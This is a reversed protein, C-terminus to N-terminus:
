KGTVTNRLQTKALATYYGVFDAKARTYADRDHRYTACLRLKLEEYRKAVDAHLRLYDRFYVEDVDGESRLHIHSVREAYGQPTYGKNFSIRADAESMCIYGAEVLKRKIKPFETTDGVVVLLDIIPKAMIGEIATSGIHHYSARIPGLIHRLTEIEDAAWKKWLPNHETLVIPFLQWLEQLSMDSLEKMDAFILM